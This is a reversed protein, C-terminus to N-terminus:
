DLDKLFDRLESDVSTEEDESVHAAGADMVILDDDDIMEIINEDNEDDASDADVSVSEDDCTVDGSDDDEINGFYDSGNYESASVCDATAEDEEASPGAHEVSLNMRPVQEQVPHAITAAFDRDEDAGAPVSDAAVVELKDDAQIQLKQGAPLDSEVRAIFKVPGVSLVAGDELLYRKGSSLKRGNLYTGNSSDLDSVFAGEAGIRLFCHRRSVQPASLRLNCDAGRGIVIDHRVTVKRINSPQDQLELVIKM